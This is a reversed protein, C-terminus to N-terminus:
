VPAFSRSCLRLFRSMFIDAYQYRSPVHLVLYQGRIVMDCVFHIDIEIHKIVVNAVGRYEAEVSSRSITHQLKSSWSLLSDGTSDRTVSIDLFYRLLGLDTTDVLVHKEDLMQRELDNIRTALPTTNPSGFTESLTGNASSVVDSNAGKEVLEQRAVGVQKKTGNSNSGVSVGRVAQRPKKLYKFVDLVIKKPCEELVNGFGQLKLVKSTDVRGWSEPCMSSTYSDLMLPTRFKTAISVGDETFTTIPIYHFKVWVLINCVDEKMINVDPTWKKMVLSVNCIVWPGNEIMADMGDKSSFRKGMFFIYVYSSLREHAVRVSEMSIVVDVGNDAQALLTCFNIIKRTPNANFLKAFSGIGMNNGNSTHCTTSSNLSLNKDLEAGVDALKGSGGDVIKSVHITGANVVHQIDNPSSTVVDNSRVNINGSDNINGYDSQVNCNPQMVNQDVHTADVCTGLNKKQKVRRGGSSLFGHEM